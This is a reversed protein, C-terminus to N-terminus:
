WGNTAWDAKAYTVRSVFEPYELEMVMKDATVEVLKAKSKGGQDTTELTKTSHNYTWNGVTKGLGQTTDAFTGDKSFSLVSSKTVIAKRGNAEM